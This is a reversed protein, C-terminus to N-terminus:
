RSSLKGSTKVINPMKCPPALFACGLGRGGVSSVREARLGCSGKLHLSCQTAPSEAPEGCAGRGDCKGGGERLPTSCKWLKGLWVCKCSTPVLLFLPSGFPPSGSCLGGLQLCYMFHPSKSFLRAGFGPGVSPGICLFARLAEGTSEWLDAFVLGLRRDCPM